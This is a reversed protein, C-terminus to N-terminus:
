SLQEVSLSSFPACLQLYVLPLTEQLFNAAAAKEGPIDQGSFLKGAGPMAGTCPGATGGESM